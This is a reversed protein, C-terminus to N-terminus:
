SRTANRYCACGTFYRRWYLQKMPLTKVKGINLKPPPPPPPPPPPGTANRHTPMQPSAVPVPQPTAADPTVISTTEAPPLEDDTRDPDDRMPSQKAPSLGAISPKPVVSASIFVIERIGDPEVAWWEYIGPGFCMAATVVAAIILTCLCVFDSFLLKACVACIGAAVAAVEANRLRALSPRLYHRVFGAAAAVVDCGMTALVQIPQYCRLSRRIAASGGVLQLKSENPRCPRGSVM